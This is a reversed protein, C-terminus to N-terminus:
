FCIYQKNTRVTEFKLNGSDLGCFCVHFKSFQGYHYIYKYRITIYHKDIYPSIHKNMNIINDNTGGM